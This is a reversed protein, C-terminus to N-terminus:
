TRRPFGQGYVQPDTREPCRVSCVFLTWSWVLHFRSDFTLGRPRYSADISRLMWARNWWSRQHIKQMTALCNARDYSYHYELELYELSLMMWDWEDKSRRDEDTGLWIIVKQAREYIEKMRFVQLNRESINNQNICIADTWFYFISETLDSLLDSLFSFLNETAWLTQGLCKM